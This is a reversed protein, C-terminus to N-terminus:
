VTVNGERATEARPRLGTGAAVVAVGQAHATASRMQDLLVLSPHGPREQIADIELDRHGRNPDLSQSATRAAFRRGLDGFAHRSRPSELHLPLVLGVAV